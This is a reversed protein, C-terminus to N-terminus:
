RNGVVEGKIEEVAQILMRDKFREGPRGQFATSELGEKQQVPQECRGPSNSKRKWLELLV